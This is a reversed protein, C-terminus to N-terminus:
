SPMGAMPTTMCTMEPWSDGSRDERSGAHAEIREEVQAWSGPRRGVRVARM